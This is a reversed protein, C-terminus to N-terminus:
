RGRERLQDEVHEAVQKEPSPLSWIGVAELGERLPSNRVCRGSPDVNVFILPPWLIYTWSSDVKVSNTAGSAEMNLCHERVIGLSTGGWFVVQTLFFVTGLVAGLAAAAERRM